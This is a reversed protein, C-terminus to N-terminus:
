RSPMTMSETDSANSTPSRPHLLSRSQAVLVWEGALPGAGWAGVLVKDHRDALLCLAGEYGEGYTYTRDGQALDVQAKVIEM